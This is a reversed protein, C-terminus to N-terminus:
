PSPVAFREPSMKAVDLGQATLDAPLPKGLVLAAATRSLAPATQIGYGGQGSLWFFDPAAPSYGVVPTRDPAFTRLGAWRAKLRQVQLTTAQEIRDVAAAIDWEDPQADTPESPTEDAPSLFLSGADPKFYFKEDIDNVFPWADVSLGPPAEVLVVTRRRPTLGVRRLGALAAVEDSWAGAANVVLSATLREAGAQVTWGGGGGGHALSHVQANTILRGDRRKFLRLYGQHLAHVDIDACHPELLAGAVYDRRLIPCIEHAEALDLIRIAPEIDPLARFRAMAPLQETTAIYLCGRRRTLPGESFGSPPDFLFERSARTLARITANGYIETFLAASRGTSHYGPRDEREVLIVNRTEALHAAVSAGAIGAGIVLIDAHTNNM